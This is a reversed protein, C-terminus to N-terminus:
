SDNRVESGGGATSFISSRVCRCAAKAGLHCITAIHTACSGPAKDATAAPVLALLGLAFAVVAALLRSM